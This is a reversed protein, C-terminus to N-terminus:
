RVEGQGVNGLHVTSRRPRYCVGPNGTLWLRARPSVRDNPEGRKHLEAPVPAGAQPPVPWAQQAALVHLAPPQQTPAMHRALPAVQPPLRPMHMFPAHPVPLAAQPPM